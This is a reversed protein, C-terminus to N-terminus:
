CYYYFALALVFTSGGFHGDVFLTSLGSAVQWQGAASSHTYKHTYLHTYSDTFSHSDTLTPLLEDPFFRWCLKNISADWLYMSVSACMNIISCLQSQSSSCSIMTLLNLPWCVWCVLRWCCDCIVQRREIKNNRNKM